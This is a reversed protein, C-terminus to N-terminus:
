WHLVVTEKSVLGKLGDHVQLQSSTGYNSLTIMEVLPLYFIHHVGVQTKIHLIKLVLEFYRTLFFKSLINM